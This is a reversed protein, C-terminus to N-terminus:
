RLLKEAEKRVPDSRRTIRRVKRFFQKAQEADSKLMSKGRQLWQKARNSLEKIKQKAHTHNRRHRLAKTFNGFAGAYSQRNMQLLGKSFYMNALMQKLQRTYVSRKGEGILLDQKLARLLSPIARNPNYSRYDALAKYFDKSFKLVRAKRESDGAAGFANAAARLDGGQYLKEAKAFKGAAKPKVVVAVRPAPPKPKEGRKVCLYRRIREGNIRRAFRRCRRRRRRCKRRCARYSKYGWKIEPPPADQTTTVQAPKEEGQLKNLARNVKTLLAWVKPAFTSGPPMSKELKQLSVKAEKYVKIQDDKEKTESAQTVMFKAKRLFHSTKIDAITDDFLQRAELNKPDIQLTNQFALKAELLKGRIRLRVGRKIEARVRAMKMAQAKRKNSEEDGGRNMYVVAFGVGGLLLFLTLLGIVLGSSSRGSAMGVNLDKGIIVFQILSKGVRIQDGHNLPVTGKVKKSNLATGNGSGLDELQFKEGDCLINFHHRSVSLDPYSIANDKERGFSIKKGLLPYEKGKQIGEVIILKALPIILQSDIGGVVMTAESSIDESDQELMRTKEEEPSLQPAPRSQQAFPGSHNPPVGHPPSSGYGPPTFGGTQKPPYSAPPPTYSGPPPTVPPGSAPPVANPPPGPIMSAFNPGIGPAMITAEAEDDEDEFSKPYKPDSM